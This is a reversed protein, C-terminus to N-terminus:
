QSAPQSQQLSLDPSLRSLKPRRGCYPCGAVIHLDGQDVTKISGIQWDIQIFDRYGIGSVRRQIELVLAGAATSNLSMVSPASVDPLYGNAHAHRLVDGGIYKRAEVGAQSPDLRNACVPCFRGREGGVVEAWLGEVYGQQSLRVDVGASLFEAGADFALNLCTIRSLNDDTLALVLDCKKVASRVNGQAVYIDQGFCQIESKIGLSAHCSQILRRAVVIKKKGIDKKTTGNLRNLNTAEVHDHDVLVFRSFGARALQECVLMGIGGLGIIAIRLQSAAIRLGAGFAKQRELAEVSDYTFAAKPELGKRLLVPEPRHNRWLRAVPQGNDYPFVASLMYNQGCGMLWQHHALENDDDVGSFFSAQPPHSHIQVPIVGMTATLRSLKNIEASEAQTLAIYGRSQGDYDNPSPAIVDELVYVSHGKRAYPRAVGLAFNEVRSDTYILRHTKDWLQPPIILQNHSPTM